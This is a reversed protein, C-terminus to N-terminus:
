CKKDLVIRGDKDKVRIRGTSYRTEQRGDPYVTKVTGDPYERRKYQATHIERQGNPFEMTREGNNDVRLVTGDPFISEENGNPFLYKITQDPFTIEKTGNPYHKETQNNNFQLIELGDPYTTHTTQTESYYYMVRQDPMIQKIDGNFFTVIVSQGDASIEKRTQNGYTIVRSGDGRIEEIKGNPHHIEEEDEENNNNSSRNVGLVGMGSPSVAAQLSTSAVGRSAELRGEDGRVPSFLDMSQDAMGNHPENKPSDEFDFRVSRKRQSPRRPKSSLPMDDDSSAEVAPKVSMSDSGLNPHSTKLGEHDSRQHPHSMKVMQGDSRSISVGRHTSKLGPDGSRSDSSKVAVGDSKSTLPRTTPAPGARPHEKLSDGRPRSPDVIDEGESPDGIISLPPMKQKMIVPIQQKPKQLNAKAKAREDERKWAELRQKELVKVEERLETSENELIDIRDRLRTSSATWRTERRSMEEQLDSLQNKLMEIEERDKKDPLARAAKQYKEFTRKEKRLKKMEEDKYEQLSNLEEAKLTQFDVVEKDLAALGKEREQRLKALAANERRFKAIEAELECLKEKLLKSQLGESPSPEQAKPKATVKEQSQKQVPKLKPFLKSVLSSTPPSAMADQHSTEGSSEKRGDLISRHGKRFVAPPPTSTASPAGALIVSADDDEEEEGDDSSESVVEGFDGWSEDDEFDVDVAHSSTAAKRQMERSPRKDEDEMDSDEDESADEGGEEAADGREEDKDGTDASEEDGKLIKEDENGTASKLQHGGSSGQPALRVNGQRQSMADPIQEIEDSDEETASGGTKWTKGEKVPDREELSHRSDNDTLTRDADAYSEDDVQDHARDTSVPQPTPASKILNSPRIPREKQRFVQQLTKVVVSADSFFSANEDAAEELLEFLDLEDKEVEENHKREQMRIQFSMEITDDHAAGEKPLDHDPMEENPVADVTITPNNGQRAMDASPKPQNPLKERSLPDHHSTKSALPPKSAVKRAMQPPEEKRERASRKKKEDGKKTERTEPKLLTLKKSVGSAQKQRGGAEVPKASWEDRGDTKSSKNGPPLSSPGRQATRSSPPRPPKKSVVGFRATGSGKRLFERRPSDCPSDQPHNQVAPQNTSESEAKLKLELLEEFTKARSGLASQIPRDDFDEAADQQQSKSSLKNNLSAADQLSDDLSIEETETEDEQEEEEKDELRAADDQDEIYGYSLESATKPLPYVGEELVSNAMESLSDVDQKSDPSSANDRQASLLLPNLVMPGATQSLSIPARTLADRVSSGHPSSPPSRPQHLGLRPRPPSQKVQQIGGWQKQRQAVLTQEVRQQELQLMQLQEQQQLLLREQQQHQWQKLQQFRQLLKAQEKAQHHEAQDVVADANQLLAHLEPPMLLHEQRTPPVHVGPQNQQAHDGFVPDPDLVVGARNVWANTRSTADTRTNFTFPKETAM